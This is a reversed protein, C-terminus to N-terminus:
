CYLFSAPKTSIVGIEKKREDKSMRNRIGLEEEYFDHLIGSSDEDM